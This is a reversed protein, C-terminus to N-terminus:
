RKLSEQSRQLSCVEKQKDGLAKKSAMLDDKATKKKKSLKHRTKRTEKM